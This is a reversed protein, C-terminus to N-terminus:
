PPQPGPFDANLCKNTFESAVIARCCEDEAPSIDKLKSDDQTNKVFFCNRDTSLGPPRPGPPLCEPGSCAFFDSTFTMLADVRGKPPKNGCWLLETSAMAVQYEALTFCPCTTTLSCSTSLDYKKTFRKKRLKKKKSSMQQKLSRISGQSATATLFVLMLITTFLLRRQHM